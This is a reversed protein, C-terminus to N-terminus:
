TSVTKHFFQSKQVILLELREILSNPSTPKSHCTIKVNKNLQLSLNCRQIKAVIQLCHFVFCRKESVFVLSPLFYRVVFASYITNITSRCNNSLLEGSGPPSNSFIKVRGPRCFSLESDPNSFASPDQSFNTFQTKVVKLKRSRESSISILM